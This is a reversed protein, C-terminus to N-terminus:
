FVPWKSIGGQATPPFQTLRRNIKEVSSLNNSILKTCKTENQNNLKSNSSNELIPYNADTPRRFYATQM